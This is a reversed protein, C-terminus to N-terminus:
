STSGPPKADSEECAWIRHTESFDASTPVSVILPTFLTFPVAALQTM